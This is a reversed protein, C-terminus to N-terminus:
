FFQRFHLHLNYGFPIQGDVHELPFELPEVLSKKVPRVLPQKFFKANM